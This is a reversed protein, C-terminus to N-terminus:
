APSARRTMVLEMILREKGDGGQTYQRHVLRREGDELSSETRSAHAPSGSLARGYLVIRKGDFPAASQRLSMRTSRADTWVSSFLGTEPDFGVIGMGTTKRGAQDFVFDSELFKGDHIMRQRCTGTARVPEGSSPYFLKVVDWEGEFKRLFEQGAGAASRPEYASQADGASPTPTAAPSPRPTQALSAAGYLFGLALVGRRVASGKRM